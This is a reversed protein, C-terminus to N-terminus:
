ESYYYYYYYYNHYNTLNRNYLRHGTSVLDSRRRCVCMINYIFYTNLIDIHVGGGYLMNYIYFICTYSFCNNYLQVRKGTFECIFDYIFIYKKKHRCENLLVGYDFAFEIQDYNIRTIIRNDNNNNIINCTLLPPPYERHHRFRFAVYDCFQWM